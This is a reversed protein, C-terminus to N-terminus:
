ERGSRARSLITRPRPRFVEDLGAVWPLTFQTKVPDEAYRGLRMDNLRDWDSKEM